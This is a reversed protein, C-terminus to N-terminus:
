EVFLAKPFLNTSLNSELLQRSNKRRQELVPIGTDPPLDCLVNAWIAADRGTKKIENRRLLVCDPTVHYDAPMQGTYHALTGDMHRWMNKYRYLHLGSIM